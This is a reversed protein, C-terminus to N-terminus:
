EYYLVLTCLDFVNTCAWSEKVKMSLLNWLTIHQEAQQTTSTHMYECKIRIVSYYLLCYMAICEHICWQTHLVCYFVLLKIFVYLVVASIASLIDHSTMHRVAQRYHLLPASLSLSIISVNYTTLLEFYWYWWTGEYQTSGKRSHVQCQVQVVHLCLCVRSMHAYVLLCLM